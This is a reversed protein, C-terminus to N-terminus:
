TVRNALFEDKMRSAEEAQQRAEEEMRHVRARESEVKKRETIDRAIKSAGVIWGSRDRVLSVTISIDLHDRWGETYPTTNEYHDVPKGARIKGLIDPQEAVRALPMLRTSSQGIMEEATYGFHTGAGPNWSTM